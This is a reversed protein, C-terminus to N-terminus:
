IYGYLKPSDIRQDESWTHYPFLIMQEKVEYKILFFSFEDLYKGEEKEIKGERGISEKKQLLAELALDYFVFLM